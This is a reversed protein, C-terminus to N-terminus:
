PAASEVLRACPETEDLGTSDYKSPCRAMVGDPVVDIVGDDALSGLVVVERGERFMDPLVGTYRANITAPPRPASSQLAFRCDLTGVRKFLSGCSVQGHVQLRKARLAPGAAIVEDVHRYYATPAERTWCIFRVVMAVALLSVPVRWDVHGRMRRLAVFAAIGIGVGLVLRGWWGVFIASPVPGLALRLADQLPEHTM